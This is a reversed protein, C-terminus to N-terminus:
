KTTWTAWERGAADSNTRLLELFHRPDPRTRGRECDHIIRVVQENLPTPVDHLRGHSVVAANIVDVETEVGRELDQLMSAKTSSVKAMAADLVRDQAATPGGPGVVLDAPDIGLVQGLAVGHATAVTCGERWLGFALRRGAADAVVEGYLLGSVAGLGSFTSNLLLKSWIQGRMNESIRVEATDSLIRALKATRQRPSGHSEGFVIPAVTTQRVHGAGLNTAGWEVIGVMLSRSGVIAGIRDLVLGNGLAVYTDVVDREVLPPLARVLQAAKVSVLAYDFRRTLEAPDTVARIPITVGTAGAQEFTLGPSRLREVHAANADLVMVDHGARTLKAAIVGGIAGAGVVLISEAAM